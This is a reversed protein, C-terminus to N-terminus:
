AAQQSVYGKQYEREYKLLAWITRAMKNALAVAVVNKPRRKLLGQLGPDLERSRNLVSRAGHILLKRMYKDGRKSIGLLRVKGGTGSQGPVLGLYAAFERVSKFADPNGITAVAASATLPGVGPIAAIRQCGRDARLWTEIRKELQDIEDELRRLGVLQEQLSHLLMAPLEEEFRGLAAGVEKMFRHRGQPLVEGFEYLLGRMQNVQMTRFKVLQERLRHLSLVAQQEASKVAVFTRGPQRSAEWIAQADAADTKNSRVFARVFKAAILKVVHGQNLTAIKRAWYHASGCAEMVITTEPHKALFPLMQARKLSQRHIEGTEMNVWHVQFVQKAIDIAITTDKM